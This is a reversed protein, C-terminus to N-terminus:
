SESSTSAESGMISSRKAQFRRFSDREMLLSIEDLAEDFLTASSGESKYRERLAVLAKGSINIQKEADEEVYTSLIHSAMEPQKEPDAKRFTDVSLWFDLNEESFENKLFQRFEDQLWIKSRIEEFSIESASEDKSQLKARRFFKRKIHVLPLLYNWQKMPESPPVPDDSNREAVM